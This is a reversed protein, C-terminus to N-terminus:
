ILPLSGIRNRFGLKSIESIMKNLWIVLKIYIYLYFIFISLPFLFLPFLPLAMEAQGARGAGRIRSLHLGAAAWYCPGGTEGKSWARAWERSGAWCALRGLVVAAIGGGLSVLDGRKDPGDDVKEGDPFLRAAGTKRGRRASGCGDERRARV